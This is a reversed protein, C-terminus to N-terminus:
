FKMIKRGILVPAPELTLWRQVASNEKTMTKMTTM